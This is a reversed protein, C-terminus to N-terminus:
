PLFFWAIQVRSGINIIFSYQCVVFLSALFASTDGIYRRNLTFLGLPVLAMMIPGLFRYISEKSIGLLMQTVPSLIATSLCANVPSRYNGMSWRASEITLRIVNLEAASDGGVIPYEGRLPNILVLSLSIMLITLPYANSPLKDHLIIILTAFIPLIFFLSVLMINNSHTNLLNVGIVATLPLLMAFLLPSFLKSKTTLDSISSSNPIVIVQIKQHYAILWLLLMIGSYTAVLSVLSLPKHYGLLPYLYNILLGVFMLFSASLGFALVLQKFIDSSHWRLCALILLGPLIFFCTIGLIQRCVPIDMLIAVDAALLLTLLVLLQKRTARGTDVSRKSPSTM